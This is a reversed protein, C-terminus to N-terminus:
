SKKLEARGRSKLFQAIYDASKHKVITTEITLLELFNSADFSQIWERNFVGELDDFPKCLNLVYKKSIFDYVIILYSSKSSNRYCILFVPFYLYPLPWFGFLDADFFPYHLIEAPIGLASLKPLLLSLSAKMQEIPIDKQQLENYAKWNQSVPDYYQVQERGIRLKYNFKEYGPVVYGPYFHRKGSKKAYAIEELITYFGLSYRAYDPHYVGMISAVSDGGVDFFSFGVLRDGEFVNVEYTDYINMEDGDQLSEELSPALIGDFTAKYEQYLAEKEATIHAPQITKNFLKRNRNITKRLSKKFTYNLLPLRIWIASYYNGEFCLFHSTFITQGM